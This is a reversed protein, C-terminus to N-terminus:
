FVLRCQCFGDNDPWIKSGSATAPNGVLVAVCSVGIFDYKVTTGAVNVKFGNSPIKVRVEEGLDGIGGAGLFDLVDLMYVISSGDITSNIDLLVSIKLVDADNLNGTTLNGVRIRIEADAEMSDKNDSWLESIDIGRTSYTTGTAAPLTAVGNFKAAADVLNMSDRQKATNTETSM